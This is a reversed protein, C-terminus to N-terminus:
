DRAPSPCSAKSVGAAKLAPTHRPQPLGSRGSGAWGEFRLHCRCARGAIAWPGRLMRLAQSEPIVARPQQLSLHSRFSRASASGGSGGQLRVCEWRNQIGSSAHVNRTAEKTVHAYKGRRQVCHWAELIRTESAPTTHVRLIHAPQTRVCPGQVCCCCCCRVASLRAHPPSGLLPPHWCPWAAGAAALCRRLVCRLKM